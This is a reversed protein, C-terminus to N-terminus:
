GLQYIARTALPPLRVDANRIGATTKKPVDLAAVAFSSPPVDIPVASIQLPMNQYFRAVGSQM